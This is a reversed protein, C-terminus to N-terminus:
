NFITQIWNEKNCLTDKNRNNTMPIAFQPHVLPDNFCELGDFYLKQSEEEKVLSVSSYNIPGETYILDRIWDFLGSPPYYTGM